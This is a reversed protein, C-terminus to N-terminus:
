SNDSPVVGTDMHKGRHKKPACVVCTVATGATSATSLVRVSSMVVIFSDTLVSAVPSM